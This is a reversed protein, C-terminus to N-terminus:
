HMESIAESAKKNIKKKPEEASASTDTSTHLIPLLILVILAFLGIIKRYQKSHPVEM